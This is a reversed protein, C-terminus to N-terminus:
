ALGSILETLRTEYNNLRASALRIGKELDHKLIDRRDFASITKELAARTDLEKGDVYHPYGLTDFLGNFKRSYAIPVVPVGASFAGICAHMRGGVVFDLGSMFSKAASADGFSPPVKLQPFHAVLEPIVSHDDDNGGRAAVHPVLYIETNSRELLRTILSRSFDAYDITLGLENSGGYGGKFLLGSINLGIKTPGPIRPQPTFPLRFAVDIFEATPVLLNRRAMYSSSLGDRTFVATARAMVTDAIRRSIPSDFPGITQPALVLPKGLMIAVFKTGAQFAFRSPGYIDTWSDGEGIDVVIDSRRVAAIYDSRGTLLPKIRPMPGITVDDPLSESSLRGDACLTQFQPVRGARAAAARLISINARTLADVGLNRHGFSHWPLAIRVIRGSM